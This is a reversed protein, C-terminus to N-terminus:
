GHTQKAKKARANKEGRILLAVARALKKPTEYRVNITPNKLHEAENFSIPRQWKWWKVAAKVVRALDQARKLEDDAM